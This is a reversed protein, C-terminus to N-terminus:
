REDEKKREKKREQKSATTFKTHTRKNHYRSSERDTIWSHFRSLMKHVLSLAGFAGRVSICMMCRQSNVGHRLPCVVVDLEM